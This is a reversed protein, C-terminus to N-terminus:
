VIVRSVALPNLIMSHYEHGPTITEAPMSVAKVPWYMSPLLVVAAHISSIVISGPRSFVWCGSHM